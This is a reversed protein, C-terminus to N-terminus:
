GAFARSVDLCFRLLPEDYGHDNVARSMRDCWARVARVVEGVTGAPCGARGCVEAMPSLSLADLRDDLVSEVGPPFAARLRFALLAVKVLATPQGLRVSDMETAAGCALDAMGDRRSMM